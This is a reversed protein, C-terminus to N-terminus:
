GGEAIRFTTKGPTFGGAHVRVIADNDATSL